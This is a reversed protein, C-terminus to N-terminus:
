EDLVRRRKEYENEDIEGRAFREKLIDLPTEGGDPPLVRRHTSGGFWRIALVVLVVVVAAFVIMMFPGFIMHGWSWGGGWFHHHDPYTQQANTGSSTLVTAMLVSIRSLRLQM